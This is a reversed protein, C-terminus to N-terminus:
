AKPEINYINEEHKADTRNASEIPLHEINIHFVHQPSIENEVEIIYRIYM